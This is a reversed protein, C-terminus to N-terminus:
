ERVVEEHDELVGERRALQEIDVYVANAMDITTDVIYFDGLEHYGHSNFKCQYLRLGQKPLHRDLREILAETTVPNKM